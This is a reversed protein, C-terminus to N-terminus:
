QYNRTSATEVNVAEAQAYKSAIELLTQCFLEVVAYFNSMQTKDQNFANNFTDRAAGEWMSVLEQEISELESVASKFQSNLNKLEEAKSQVENLSVRFESM